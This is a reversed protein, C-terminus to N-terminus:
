QPPLLLDRTDLSLPIMQSNRELVINISTAPPPATLRWPRYYPDMTDVALGNISVLRDGIQVGKEEASSKPLVQAVKIPPTTTSDDLGIGTVYVKNIDMLTSMKGADLRLKKAPYDVTVMFNHMFGAPLVGFFTKNSFALPPPGLLGDTVTRVLIRSVKKGGVEYSGVSGLRAWFTGIAAPTYFGKLANRPKAANLMDFTGDPMAGFSAGTDVLFYGATDEAKGEVFLYYNRVFPVEAPQGEVHDCALLSAEDRMTQLIVRSRPYDITLVSKGFVDAGVIGQIGALKLAMQIDGFTTSGITVKTDGLTIEYPGSAGVESQLSTDFMSYPAGTDLIFKYPKGNVAVDVAIKGAIELFDVGDPCVAAPGTEMGADDQPATDPAGSDPPSTIATSGCGVLILSCFPLLYRM